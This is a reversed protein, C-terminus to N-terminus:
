KPAEDDRISANHKDISEKCKAVAGALDKHSQACQKLIMRDHSSVNIMEGFTVGEKIPVSEGCAQLLETSVDCTLSQKVVPVAMPTCGSSAASLCAASILCMLSRKM